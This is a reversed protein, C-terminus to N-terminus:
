YMQTLMLMLLSPAKSAAPGVVTVVGVHVVLYVRAVCRDLQGTLGVKVVLQGLLGCQIDGRVLFEEAHPVDSFVVVEGVEFGVLVGGVM